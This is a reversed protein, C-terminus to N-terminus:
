YKLEFNLKILLLLVDFIMLSVLVIFFVNYCFLVCKMNCNLNIEYLNNIYFIMNMVKKVKKFYNYM